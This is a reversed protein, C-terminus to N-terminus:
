YQLHKCEHRYSISRLVFLPTSVKYGESNPWPM